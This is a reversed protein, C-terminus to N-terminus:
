TGGKDASRGFPLSTELKRGDHEVARRARDRYANDSLPQGRPGDHPFADRLMKTAEALTQAGGIVMADLELGLLDRPRRRPKKPGQAIATTLRGIWIQFGLDARLANDAAEIALGRIMEAIIRNHDGPREALALKKRWDDIKRVLPHDVLRRGENSPTDAAAGTWDADSGNETM